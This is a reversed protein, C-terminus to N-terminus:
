QKRYGYAFRSLTEPTGFWVVEGDSNMAYHTNRPDYATITGILQKDEDTLVHVHLGKSELVTLLQRNDFDRQEQQNFKVPNTARDFDREIDTIPWNM